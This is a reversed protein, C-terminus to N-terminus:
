QGSQLAVATEFHATRPFMDFLALKDLRYCGDACLVKLDRALTAPNCSVYFLHAPRAHRLAELVKSQCGTRPPDLLVLTEAPPFQRLVGPLAHETRDKIIRCGLSLKGLNHAAAEGAQRDSEILVREVYDKKGTLSFTGVGSYADVLFKTKLGKAWRHVRRVLESAVEPNVQWFSGLPVSFEKGCLEERLWSINVPAKGFYFHCEGTSSARLTLPAPPKRRANQTGWASHVAKAINRNIIPMALPCERVTFFTQNDTLCYGYSLRVGQDTELTVFPELRLKNRYGYLKPSAFCCDLPPLDTFGGIRRLLDLLQKQKAALEAQYELHQYVCGGCRGFHRCPPEVRDPSPSLVKAVKGRIYSKKIECIVVEVTEGIATGPVFIVLGEETRAVGDGGFAIDIIDVTLTNGVSLM